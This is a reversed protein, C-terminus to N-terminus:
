EVKVLFESDLTSGDDKFLTAKLRVSGIYNPKPTFTLNIPIGPSISGQVVLSGGSGNSTDIASFIINQNRSPFGSYKLLTLTCNLTGNSQVVNNVADLMLSDPYSKRFYVNKEIKITDLVYAKILSNGPKTSVNLVASAIREANATQTQTSQDNSFTGNDTEFKVTRASQDNIFLQVSMDIDSISDANVTDPIVGKFRIIDNPSIGSNWVYDEPDVCSHFLFTSFGIMLYMVKKM